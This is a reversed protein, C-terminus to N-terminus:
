CLGPTKQYAIPQFASQGYQHTRNNTYIDFFTNVIFYVSDRVVRESAFIAPWACLPGGRARM